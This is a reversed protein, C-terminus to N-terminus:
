VLHLPVFARCRHDRGWKEGCIFCLGKSRRYAKLNKWHDDSQRKVGEAAKKEEVSKSVWHTPPPPPPAPLFQSPLSSSRPFPSPQYGSSTAACDDGLEEYLLALSYAIDLDRPQQIAVLLKVGPLLGDLFKTTYHVQDLCPEYAAIQDMLALFHSM